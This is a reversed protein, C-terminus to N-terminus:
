EKRRHLFAFDAEVYSRLFEPHNTNPCDMGLESYKLKSELRARWPFFFGSVGGGGCVCLYVFLSNLM